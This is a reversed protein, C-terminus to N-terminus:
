CDCNGRYRKLVCYECQRHDCPVCAPACIYCGERMPGQGCGFMDMCDDCGFEQCTEANQCQKRCSKCWGDCTAAQCEVERGFQYGADHEDFVCLCTPCHMGDHGMDDRCKKSFANCEKHM